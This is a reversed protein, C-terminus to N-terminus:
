VFFFSFTTAIKPSMLAVVRRKDPVWFWFYMWIIKVILVRNHKFGMSLGDKKRLSLLSVVPLNAQENYGPPHVIIIEITM